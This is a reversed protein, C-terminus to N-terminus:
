KSYFIQTYYYKGNADKRVAIGTHTFDGEVNAKLWMTRKCSKMAEAANIDYGVNESFDQANEKQKLTKWRIEFNDNSVDNKSIMYNTHDAALKDAIENRILLPKGITQRHHNVLMIFRNATKLEDALKTNDVRSHSWSLLVLFLPLIWFITKRSM